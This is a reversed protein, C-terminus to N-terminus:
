GVRKGVCVSTHTGQVGVRIVCMCDLKDGGMHRTDSEEYETEREKVKLEFFTKLENACIINIYSLCILYFNIKKKIFLLM